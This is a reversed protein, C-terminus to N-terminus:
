PTRGVRVVLGLALTLLVTMAGAVGVWGFRTWFVGTATGTLSAGIYYCVIYLSSAHARRTGARYGVWSSAVTHAAFFGFTILGIGTVIAWLTSALTCLVGALMCLLSGGLTRARGVETALTGAWPSSVMGVLYLLFISGIATHGLEYPPAILRFTLYNYVAVFVGMFLFGLAYLQWLVPDPTTVRTHEEAPPLDAPVRAAHRSLPLTAAVLAAAILGLGGTVAVAPRWGLAETSRFLM